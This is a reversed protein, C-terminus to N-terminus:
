QFFSNILLVIARHVHTIIRPVNRQWGRCALLAFHSFQADIAQLVHVVVAIKKM